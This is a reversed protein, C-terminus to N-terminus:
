ADRCDATLCVVRRGGCRLSGELQDLNHLMETIDRCCRVRVAGVAILPGPFYRGPVSAGWPKESEPSRRRFGRFCATGCAAWDEGSMGAAV